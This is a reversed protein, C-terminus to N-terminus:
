TAYSLSLDYVARHPVLDSPGALAPATAAGFVACCMVTFRM